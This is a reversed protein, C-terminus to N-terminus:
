SVSVHVHDYHNQTPDGRDEMMNSSGNPYWIRQQWIIYTINLEGAHQQLWANVQDGRAGTVMIDVARGSGHDGPDGARYGGIDTMDPFQTRVASYVKQANPGLGLGAAESAYNSTTVSGTQPAQSEEDATQTEPDAEPQEQPAEEVPAEEVPAEEAPPEQATEETDTATQAVPEPKPKPKPAPKVVADVALAGSADHVEGADGPTPATVAATTRSASRSPASEDGRGNLLARVQAATADAPAAASAQPGTGQAFSPAIVFAGSGLVIGVGAVAKAAARAGSSGVSSPLTSMRTLPGRRPSGHRSVYRTTSM